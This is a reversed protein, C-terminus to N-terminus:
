DSRKMNNKPLTFFFRAGHGPHSEVWINGGHREVIRKCIALGIGTGEFEEKHHLRQFIKFIKDFYVPDIGIGEDSVLFLNHGKQSKVSVHIKPVGRSFKISNSILNQFLQIMQNKDANVMPLKDSHIEAKSELVKLSLNQMTIEFVNTMDVKSFETGRTNIRSYSLLGNLLEYMRKAGNVAFSIYERANDDLKESYQKELLQTFSTIMRLPEQLDHSAVYAFDELEKNSRLLEENLKTVLMDTREQFETLDFAVGSIMKPKGIDDRYTMARASIYRLKGAQSRIRFITEFPVKRKLSNRIAIRLHPLDDEYVISELISFAQEYAGTELGFMEEVRADLVLKESKMDWEWIGIKGNELAMELKHKSELLEIETKKRDTIDHVMGVSRVIRGEANKFHDCKEHVYRVEGTKNRIIRHEINYGDLNNTISDTYAKDVRDRDDPHIANLFGDYTEKEEGRILGFIRYVEDTWYLHGKELDLEWSGLNAIEQSRNLRAENKLLKEEYEKHKTIDVFSILVDSLDQEHGPMVSVHALFSRVQGNVKFEIEEDIRNIGSAIATFIRKLVQVSNENLFESFNKSNKKIPSAYFLSQQNVAIIEITQIIDRIEDENTEFFSTFDTIGKNKLRDIYKKIGNADIEWIPVASYEFLNRFRTESRVAKELIPNFERTFAFRGVILLVLSVLLTFMGARFFPIMVERIDMKTVLGWGLEPLFACYALVKVNRYDRGFISGGNGSLAYRMPLGIGTNFQVANFGEYPPHRVDMLYKISDNDKIAVLYEGSKGFTPNNKFYEQLIELTRDRNNTERYISKIIIQQNISLDKLDAKKSKIVIFYIVGLCFILTVLTMAMMILWISVSSRSFSKM